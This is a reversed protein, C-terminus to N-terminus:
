KDSDGERSGLRVAIGLWGSGGNPFQTGTVLIQFGAAAMLTIIALYLGRMRLAPLGVLMGVGASVLGAVLMNLEFPLGTAHWMRLTVWGGVGVLAVQALSVLGLRAYLLATGTAAITFIVSSIMVRLWLSNLLPPVLAIVVLALAFGALLRRDGLRGLIADRM